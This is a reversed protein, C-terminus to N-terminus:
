SNISINAEFIELQLQLEEASVVMEEGVPFLVFLNAVM